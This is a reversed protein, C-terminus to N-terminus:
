MQIIKWIPVSQASQFGAGQRVPPEPSGPCAGSTNEQKLIAHLWPFKDM